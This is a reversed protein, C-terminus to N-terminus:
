IMVSGHNIQPKLQNFVTCFKDIREGILPHFAVSLSRGM